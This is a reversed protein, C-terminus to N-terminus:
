AAVEKNQASPAEAATRNLIIDILHVISITAGIPFSLYYIGRSIPITQYLQSWANQVVQISNVIGVALFIILIVDIVTMYIRWAGPKLKDTVFTLRMHEQKHFTMPMGIFTVWCLGVLTLEYQWTVPSDFLKRMIVSYDIIVCLAVLLFGTVVACVKDLILSLQHIANKM